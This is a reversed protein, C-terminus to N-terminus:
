GSSTVVFTTPEYQFSDFSSYCTLFVNYVGVRTAPPVRLRVFPDPAGYTSPSGGLFQSGSAIVVGSSRIAMTAQISSYPAPSGDPAISCRDDPAAVDVSSGAIGSGPNVVTRPGPVFPLVDPTCATLSLLIVSCTLALRARSSRRTFMM